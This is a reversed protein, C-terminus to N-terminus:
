AALQNPNDDSVTFLVSKDTKSNFFLARRKARAIAKDLIRNIKDVNRMQFIWTDFKPYLEEALDMEAKQIKLLRATLENAETLLALKEEAEKTLTTAM